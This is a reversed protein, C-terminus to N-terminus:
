ELRVGRLREVQDRSRLSVLGQLTAKVLNKHNNNGFSKSLINKM